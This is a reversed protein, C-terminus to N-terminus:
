GRQAGPAGPREDAAPPDLTALAMRIDELVLGLAGDSTLDAIRALSREARRLIPCARRARAHDDLARRVRGLVEADTM